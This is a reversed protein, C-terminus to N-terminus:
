VTMSSARCMATLAVRAAAFWSAGLPSNARDANGGECVYWNVSAYSHFHSYGYLRVSVIVRVGARVGGAVV